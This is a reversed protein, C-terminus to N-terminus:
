ILIIYLAIRSEPSYAPHLNVKGQFNNLARVELLLVFRVNSFKYTKKSFWIQPPKTKGFSCTSKGCSVKLTESQNAKNSKFLLLLIYFYDGWCPKKSMVKTKGTICLM